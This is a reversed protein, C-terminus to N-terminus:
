ADKKPTPRFEAGYDVDIEHAAVMRGLRYGNASARALATEVPLIKGTQLREGLMEDIWVKERQYGQGLPIITSDAKIVPLKERSFIEVDGLETPEAGGNMWRGRVEGRSAFPLAWVVGEEVSAALLEYTSVPVVPLGLSEALGVAFAVGVRLGTFGGPGVVVAVAELGDRGNQEFWKQVGEALVADHKKGDDVVHPDLPENETVGTWCSVPSSTDIALLKM